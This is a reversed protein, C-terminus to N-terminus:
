ECYLEELKKELQKWLKWNIKVDEVVRNRMIEQFEDLTQGEQQEWFEVDPKPVGFDEGYGGLGHNSRTHNLTWSLALTDVYTPYSLHVGLLRKFLSVDHRMANHIVIKYGEREWKYLMRIMETDSHTTEVTKGDYTWGMVHFCTALKKTPDSQLAALGDGETDIVVVKHM